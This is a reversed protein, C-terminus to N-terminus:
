KRVGLRRLVARERKKRKELVIKRAQKKAATIKKRFSPKISKLQGTKTRTVQGAKVADAVLRQAESRKRRPRRGAREDARRLIKRLSPKDTTIAQHFIVIGADISPAADREFLLRGAQMSISEIGSLRRGLPGLFQARVIESGAIVLDTFTVPEAPARVIQSGSFPVNFSTM